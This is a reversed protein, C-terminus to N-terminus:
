IENDKDTDSENIMYYKEDSKYNYILDDYDFPKSRIQNYMEEFEDGGGKTTNILKLDNLEDSKYNYILDDYDFPESRIQNYIEEFENIDGKKEFENIDDKKEFENIDDKKEFENGGGKITNISKLENLKDTIKQLQDDFTKIDDFIYNRNDTKLKDVLKDIKYKETSFNPTFSIISYNSNNKKVNNNYMLDSEKIKCGILNKYFLNFFNM